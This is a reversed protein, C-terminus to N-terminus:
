NQAERIASTKRLNQLLLQLIQDQNVETAADPDSSTTTTINITPNDEDCTANLIAESKQLLKLTLNIMEIQKDYDCIPATLVNREIALDEDPFTEQWDLYGARIVDIRIEPNGAPMEFLGSFTGDATDKVFLTDNNTVDIVYLASSDINNIKFFKYTGTNDEYGFQIIGGNATSVVGTTKMSRLNDAFNLTDAKITVVGTTKNVELVSTATPDIVVDLDAWNVTASDGYALLSDPSPFDMNANAVKWSKARDYVQDLDDLSTYADVITKETETINQDTTFVIKIPTGDVGKLVANAQVLNFNYHLASWEYVDDTNPTGSNTNIGRTQITGNQARGDLGSQGSGILFDFPAIVGNADAVYNYPRQLNGTLGDFVLTASANGNVPNDEMYFRFGEVPDGVADVGSPEVTQVVEIRGNNYNTPSGGNLHNAWVFETGNKANKVIHRRNGFQSIDAINGLDSDMKEVTVDYSSENNFADRAGYVQVNETVVNRSDNRYTVGTQGSAYMKVDRLVTTGQVNFQIDGTNGIKEVVCNEFTTNGYIWSSFEGKFVVGNFENTGSADCRLTQSNWNVQDNEIAFIVQGVEPNFTFGNETQTSILKLSGNRAYLRETADTGRFILTVRNFDITLDGDVYLSNSALDVVYFTSHPTNGYTYVNVGNGITQMATIFSARDDTGPGSQTITTGVRAFGAHATCYLFLGLLLSMWKASLIYNGKKIVNKPVVESLIINREEFMDLM